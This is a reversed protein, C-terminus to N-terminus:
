RGKAWGATRKQRKGLGAATQAPCTKGEAYETKLRCKRHPPPAQPQRRRAREQGTKRRKLVSRFVERVIKERSGLSVAPSHWSLLFFVSVFVCLFSFSFSFNSAPPKRIIRGPEAKAEYLGRGPKRSDQAPPQAEACPSGTTTAQPPPLTWPHAQPRQASDPLTRRGRGPQIKGPPRFRRRNGESENLNRCPM